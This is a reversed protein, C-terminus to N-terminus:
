NFKDKNWMGRLENNWRNPLEDEILQSRIPGELSLPQSFFGSDVGFVSGTQYGDFYDNSRLNNQPTLMNAQSQFQQQSANKPKAAYEMASEQRYPKGPRSSLWRRVFHEYEKLVRLFGHNPNVIPRRSRVLKLAEEMPMGFTKMLWATLVTTSRSVGAACHVLVRKRHQSKPHAYKDLFKFAQPFVRKMMENSAEPIDDVEIILHDHLPYNGVATTHPGAVNLVAQINHRALAEPSTAYVSGLFVGPLIEDSHGVTFHSSQM